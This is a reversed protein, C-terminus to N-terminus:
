YVLNSIILRKILHFTEFIVNFYELLKGLWFHYKENQNEQGRSFVTIVGKEFHVKSSNLNHKPVQAREGDYKVEAIIKTSFKKLLKKMEEASYAPRALMCNIPMGPVLESNGESGLSISYGFVEEEIEPKLEIYRPHEKIMELAAIVSKQSM